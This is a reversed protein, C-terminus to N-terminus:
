MISSLTSTNSVNREYDIATHDNVKDVTTTAPETGKVLDTHHNGDGAEFGVEMECKITTAEVDYRKEAM